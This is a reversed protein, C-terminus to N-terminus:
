KHIMKLVACNSNQEGTFDLRFTYMGVGFNKPTFVVNHKGAMQAENVLESICVGLTNYVSLKVMGNEPLNYSLTADGRFPNPYGAFEFGDVSHNGQVFIQPMLLFEYAKAEDGYQDAIIGTGFLKFDLEGQELENLPLFSLYIMIDNGAVDFINTTAFVVRIIGSDDTVLLDNNNDIIEQLTPNIKLVGNSDSTNPMSASVLKFQEKTYFLELGMASFDNLSSSIRLPIEILGSNNIIISEDSIFIVNEDKLAKVQSWTNASDKYKSSSANYDGYSIVPITVNVNSGNVSITTDLNVWNGKPFNYTTNNPYAVKAQIRAKDVSNVTGNNDVDAAKKYIRSFNRSPDTNTDNAIYYLILSLDVSNVHDCWQMTDATYKDYVLTYNGNYVSSFNFAGDADSTDRAIEAGSQNKLIVIEKYIDYIRSNYTPPYPATGPNAKGAYMTRGTIHVGGFTVTVTDTATCGNNDITLTYTTTHAPSALPEASSSNDLATDPLWNINGPGNLSSGISIPTGTYITDHGADAVPTTIIDMIIENSYAPNNLTCELNSTLKCVVTDSMSLTDSSYTSSNGGVISGNIKWQYAPSTGPNIATATFTVLTGSCVVNSPAATIAVSMPTTRRQIRNGAADTTFEYVNQAVALQCLGLIILLFITKKM